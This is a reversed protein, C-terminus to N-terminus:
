EAVSGVKRRYGERRGMNRPRKEGRRRPLINDRWLNRGHNHQILHAGHRLPKVLQPFLLAQKEGKAFFLFHMKLKEVDTNKALQSAPITQTQKLSFIGAFAM